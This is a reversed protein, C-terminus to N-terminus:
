KKPLFRAKHGYIFKYFQRELRTLRKTYTKDQLNFYTISNDLKANEIETGIYLSERRDNHIIKIFHREPDFVLDINEKSQEVFQISWQHMMELKENLSVPKWPDMSEICKAPAGGYVKSPETDKTLLSGILCISRYKLTLGSGVVCSGVLWVDDEIVTKRKTFLTCGEILEGSAVHTWIQSYM